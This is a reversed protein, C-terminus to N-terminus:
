QQAEPGSGPATFADKRARVRCAPSRDGVRSPHLAQELGQWAVALAATNVTFHSWRGDYPDPHEEVLGAARLKRVHHSVLNQPLGLTGALECNCIEGSMVLLFIQRRTPDALLKLFQAAEATVDEPAGM